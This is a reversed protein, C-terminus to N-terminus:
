LAQVALPARTRLDRVLAYYAVSKDPRIASYVGPQLPRTGVLSESTRNVETASESPAIASSEAGAGIEILGFGALECKKVHDSSAAEAASDPQVQAQNLGVTKTSATGNVAVITTGANADQIIPFMDTTRQQDDADVQAAFYRLSQKGKVLEIVVQSASLDLRRQTSSLLVDLGVLGQANELLEPFVADLRIGDPQNIRAGELTVSRSALNGGFITLTCNVGYPAASGSSQPFFHVVPKTLDNCIFFARWTNAESMM